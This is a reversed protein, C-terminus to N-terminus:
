PSESPFNNNEPIQNELPFQKSTNTNQIPTNNVTKPKERKKEPVPSLQNLLKEM